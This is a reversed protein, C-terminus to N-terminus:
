ERIPVSYREGNWFASLQNGIKVFEIVTTFHWDTLPNFASVTFGHVWAPKYRMYSPDLSCLCPSTYHTGYPVDVVNKKHVHGTVLSFDHRINAITKAQEMNKKARTTHTKAHSFGHAWYLGANVQFVNQNNVPETFVVGQKVLDSMLKATLYDRTTLNEHLAFRADHNGTVAVHLASPAADKEAEILVKHSTLVNDVSDDYAQDVLRRRDEYRSLKPNDLVDNLASIWVPKIVRLMKLYLSLATDDQVPLHIDSRFVAYQIGGVSAVLARHENVSDRGQQVLSDITDRSENNRPANDSLYRLLAIAAGEQQSGRTAMGSVGSTTYDYEAALKKVAEARPLHRYKGHVMLYMHLDKNM